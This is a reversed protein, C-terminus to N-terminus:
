ARATLLDPNFPQGSKLVGYIVRILKHMVAGVVQMKTKGRGRLQEAWVQFPESWRIATLAPFYLARRLHANGVKCLRARGQVSSGSQKEQPTLGAYAALQRASGFEQWQSIEALIRTGSRTSIGKISVLLKLVRKLVESEEIHQSVKEELRNIQLQMFEIHAEIEEHLEVIATGLRNREQVIMRQLMELRRSLQQLQEAEPALPKWLQPQMVRCFRAIVAADASDTKTRSMQSQAFGQIRSPNVVSVPHGQQYLHQSVLHGYTNTAELCAHVSSVKQQSLWQSLEALGSPDNTVKKKQPRSDGKLLALQLTAKSVDIGLTASTM